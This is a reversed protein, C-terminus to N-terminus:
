REFADDQRWLAARKRKRVASGVGHRAYFPSAHQRRLFGHEPLRVRAIGGGSTGSGCSHRDHKRQMTTCLEHVAKAEPTCLPMCPHTHIYMCMYFYYFYMSM